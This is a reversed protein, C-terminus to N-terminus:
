IVRRELISAIRTSIEYNFSQSWEGWDDATIKNTADGGIITAIDGSKVDKINTVDIVIMNMTVRGIQPAKEKGIIVQSKNSTIRSIGDFYGVPLIAIKSDKKLKFSCNYSIFSGKKLNKVEIIRCKWSLVPQLGLNKNALTLEKSSLFGYLGGGIRVMDFHSPINKLLTGATSSIHILPKINQNNLAQQWDKLIAIQQKSYDNSNSDDAAAFHSYLGKVIINNDPLLQLIKARDEITFGDRGMGSEICLHVLLKQNKTLKQAATLIDFNSLSVEINNAIAAEIQDIFIRGLVLIPQDINNKRLTLADEFDYVALYDVKNKIQNAVEIMGHGYANAKLVAMFKTKNNLNAKIQAINNLLANKSIELWSLKM